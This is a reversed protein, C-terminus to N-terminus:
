LQHVSSPTGGGAQHPPPPLPDGEGPQHPPARPSYVGGARIRRRRSTPVKKEHNLLLSPSMHEVTHAMYPFFRVSCFIQIACVELFYAERTCLYDEFAQPGSAPTLGRKEHCPMPITNQASSWTSASSRLRYFGSMRLPLCIYPLLPQPPNVGWQHQQQM